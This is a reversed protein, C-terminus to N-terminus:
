VLFKWFSLHLFIGNIKSMAQGWRTHILDKVAIEDM